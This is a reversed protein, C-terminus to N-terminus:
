RWLSGIANIILVTISGVALAFLILGIILLAIFLKDAKCSSQPSNLHTEIAALNKVNAKFAVDFLDGLMPVSGVATDLLLNGVMRLLTRRPLGMLAAEVIIYGSLAASLTDGGGPILGLIPDLGVRQKTGPIPIANDLLRVIQQLRRLRAVYQTPISLSIPESM